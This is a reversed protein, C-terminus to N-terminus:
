PKVEAPPDTRVIRAVRSMHFTAVNGVSGQISSTFTVFGDRVDYGDAQIHYVADGPTEIKYTHRSKNEM